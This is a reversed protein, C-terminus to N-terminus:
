GPSPVCPGACVDIVYRHEVCVEGRFSAAESAVCRGGLRALMRISAKNRADTVAIVRLAGLQPMLLRLAESALGQGQSAAALSYGIEAEFKGDAAVRRCLGIDGILRDGHCAAIGIQFWTGLVGAEAGSMETLFALAQADSQATWGQYRGVEADSRYAQFDPLDAPSLRRLTLRPSHLPLDLM